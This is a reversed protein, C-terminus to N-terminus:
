KENGRSAIDKKLKWGSKEPKFYWDPRGQEFLRAANTKAVEAPTTDTREAMIEYLRRRDANEAALLERVTTKEKATDDLYENKVAAAFGDHVEGVKQADKLKVLTPYRQKFREKLEALEDDNQAAAPLATLGALLLTMTMIWRLKM